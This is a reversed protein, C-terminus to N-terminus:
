AESHSFANRKQWIFVGSLLGLGCGVFLLSIIIPQLKKSGSVTAMPTQSPEITTGLVAATEEPSPTVTTQKEIPTPTKTVIRTPTPTSTPAPTNTPTKTPTYSPTSTPAPTSTPLSCSNTSGKTSTSCIVWQGGGDSSRGISQDETTNSYAHNDVIDGNANFLRVTDGTNNLAVNTTSKEFVLFGGAPISSGSAISYPSSGGEEDDLKWNSIDISTSDSNYLEIWETDESSPGSPNALFENITVVAFVTRALLLFAIIGFIIRNCM